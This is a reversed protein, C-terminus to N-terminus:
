PSAIAGQMSPPTRAQDARLVVQGPQTDAASVCAVGVSVTFTLPAGRSDLASGVTFDTACVREAIAEAEAPSTHPLLLMFEEGGFRGATDYPRLAARLM